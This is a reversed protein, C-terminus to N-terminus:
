EFLSECHALFLRVEERCRNIPLDPYKYTTEPICPVHSLKALPPRPGPNSSVFAISNRIQLFVLDVIGHEICVAYVANRAHVRACACVRVCFASEVPQCWLCPFQSVGPVWQQSGVRAACARTEGDRGVISYASRWRRLYLGIVCLM